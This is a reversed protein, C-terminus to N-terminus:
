TRIRCALTRIELEGCIVQLDRLAIDKKAAVFDYVERDRVLFEM